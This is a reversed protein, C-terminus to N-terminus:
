AHGVTQLAGVIGVLRVDQQEIGAGDAFFGLFLHERLQTLPFGVFGAAGARHDADAAADGALLALSNTLAGRVDIQHEARLCQMPQRLHSYAQGMRTGSASCPPKEPRLATRMGKELAM